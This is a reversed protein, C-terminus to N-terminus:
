TGTRRYNQKAVAKYHDDTVWVNPLEMAKDLQERAELRKGAVILTLGLEVRHAVVNPALTVAEQLNTVSQSLSAPPFAGYIFEAFARLVWNLQALERNWVGLVHLAVDDRPNLRLATDAEVKVEKSLEVKRRQGEFLALKGIAVALQTHGNADQPNLAVARRAMQEADRCLQKQQNPDASLTAKDSLARAFKWAVVYNNTDLQSAARFATLAADLDLRALAADGNALAATVTVDDGYSAQLGWFTLFLTALRLSRSM